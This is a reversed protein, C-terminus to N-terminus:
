ARGAIQTLRSELAGADIDPVNVRPLQLRDSGPQVPGRGSCCALRFGAARVTAVAEAGYDAEGGFPYSFREVPAGCIGELAARSGAVERHQTEPDLSILRSHSLTHAGVTALPHRGLAAIDDPALRPHRPPEDQVGLHARFREVESARTGSSMGSLRSWFELYARERDSRPGMRAQWGPEVPADDDGSGPAVLLRDLEDWWFEEREGAGAVFFTAPIGAGALAPLANELNDLYGDDFTIAVPLRGHRRAPRGPLAGLDVPRFCRRLMELHDAFHRPSVGLGWPDVGPERVRHYM